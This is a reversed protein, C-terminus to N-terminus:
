SVRAAGKQGVAMGPLLCDGVKGHDLWSSVSGFARSGCRPCERSAHIAECDLCLRAEALPISVDWDLPEFCLDALAAKIRDILKKM